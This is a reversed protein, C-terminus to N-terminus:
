NQNYVQDGIKSAPKIIVQFCLQYDELLKCVSYFKCFIDNKM